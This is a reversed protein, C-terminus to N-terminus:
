GDLDREPLPLHVLGPVYRELDGDHDSALLQARSRRGGTLRYLEFVTARLEVDPDGEGFRWTHEPAVLAVAGLGHAALDGEIMRRRSSLGVTVRDAARDGITGLAAALDHEHAVVDDTLGALAGPTAGFRGLFEPAADAWRELLEGTAATRRTAVGEDVWAQTDGTPGRGAALDEALGSLHAVCDHVSWAPCAPVVVASRRPDLGGVLETIARRAADYARAYDEAGPEYLNV